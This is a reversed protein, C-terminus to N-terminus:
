GQNVNPSRDRQVLLRLWAPSPGSNPRRLVLVTAPLYVSFVILMGIWDYLAALSAVPHLSSGAIWAGATAVVAMAVSERWTAPITFLPLTNYWGWAQPMCALAVILWAEPRRWRLLALLVLFGGFRTIPPDMFRANRVGEIWVLPWGPFLALSIGTLVVGGILAFVLAKRSQTALLLPIATQPKAALVLGVWPFFLFATLLISWQGLRASNAYPETVFLPLLHWGNRTVGFALLFTSIAVFIIAAAHESLAMLPMVAVLATAPYILPWGYDFARGPGILSYPNDGNALASAGFWAMGFDTHFNPLRGYEVHILYAGVLAIATAIILRARLTPARAAASDPGTM